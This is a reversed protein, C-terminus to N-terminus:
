RSQWDILSNFDAFVGTVQADWSSVEFSAEDRLLLSERRMDRAVGAVQINTPGWVPIFRVAMCRVCELLVGGPRSEGSVWNSEPKTLWITLRDHSASYRLIQARGGQWPRLVDALANVDGFGTTTVDHTMPEGEEGLYQLQQITTLSQRFITTSTALTLM